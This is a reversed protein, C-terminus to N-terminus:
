CNEAAMQSGVYNPDELHCEPDAANPAERYAAAWQKVADRCEATSSEKPVMCM